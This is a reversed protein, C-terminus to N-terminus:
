PILKTVEFSEIIVPGTLYLYGALERKERASLKNRVSEENLLLRIIDISNNHYALKLFRNNDCSPDIDKKLIIKAIRLHRDATCCKALLQKLIIRSTFSEHEIIPALIEPKDILSLVTNAPNTEYSPTLIDNVIDEIPKSKLIDKIM